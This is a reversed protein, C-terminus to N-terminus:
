TPGLYRSEFKICLQAIQPVTGCLIKKSDSNKHFLKKSAFEKLNIFFNKRLLVEYSQSSFAGDARKAAMNVQLEELSNEVGDLSNSNIELFAKVKM